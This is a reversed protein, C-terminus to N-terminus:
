TNELLLKMRKEKHYASWYYKEDITGKTILLYIQGINVRGIRGRRQITRLASPVPEFFIGIDANEVHLGEESVSTAVLVNFKGDKFDELTQIQKKQSMGDKQGVFAKAKSPSEANIHKVLIEVTSRLNAFIIIKEKKSKTFELIKTFKPHEMEREQLNSTIAKIRKFDWDEVIKKSAKTTKTQSEIKEIAKIFTKFSQTELTEKLHMLKILVTIESIAFYTEVDKDQQGFLTRQMKLLIGKRLKSPESNKLFNRSHLITAHKQLLKTLFKQLQKYDEPIEVFIKNTQKQPIFSKINIDSESISEFLEVFLNKKIEELREKDSAPSASLALILSHKQFQKALWVYAYEGTARHAEDIVILSFDTPEFYRKILDSEVTQPTAIIIKSNNWLERRKLPPTTGTLSSIEKTPTFFNKFSKEHQIVLPKTPAVILIKGKDIKLGALAIAVITKGTGTPLTVFSNKNHIKGLILEQYPRLKLKSKIFKM